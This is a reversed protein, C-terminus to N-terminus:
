SLVHCPAGLYFLPAKRWSLTDRSTIGCAAMWCRRLHFALLTGSTLPLLSSELCHLRSLMWVAPPTCKMWRCECSRATGGELECPESNFFVRLFTKNSM